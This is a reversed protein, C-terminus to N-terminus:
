AREFWKAIAMVREPLGYPPKLVAVGSGIMRRGEPVPFIVESVLAEPEAEPLNLREMLEEHTGNNLIPYWVMVVGEPWKRRARVVVDAVRRFEFSEEYPPDIMLLGRRPTPPILAMAGQLGDRRHIAVGAARLHRLLASHEGPHLEMLHLTDTARLLTRAILPSGPYAHSGHRQSIASLARAYPHEAPIRGAATMAVIGAAAEGTKSAEPGSLDYLGRGAHSELYSIPRDKQTLLTLIEALMAHKHVDAPSGAHYAHQYSLM